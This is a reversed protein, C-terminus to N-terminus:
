VNEVKKRIKWLYIFFLLAVINIGFGYPRQTFLYFAFDTGLRFNAGFRNRELFLTIHFGSHLYYIVTPSSIQLVQMGQYILSLFIAKRHNEAILIGAITGFLFIGAFVIYVIASGATLEPMFFMQLILCLGLFGGGLESVLLVRKIGKNM